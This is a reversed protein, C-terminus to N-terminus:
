LSALHHPTRVQMSTDINSAHEEHSACWEKFRATTEKSLDTDNFMGSLKSSYLQGGTQKLKEIVALESSSDCYKSGALLRKALLRRYTEM